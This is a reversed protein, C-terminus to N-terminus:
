IWVDNETLDSSMTHPKSNDFGEYGCAAKRYEVIREKILGKYVGFKVLWDGANWTTWSPM